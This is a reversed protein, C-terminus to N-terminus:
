KGDLKQNYQKKTIQALTDFIKLNSEITGNKLAQSLDTDYKSLDIGVLNGFSEMFQQKTLRMGNKDEIIHLSHLANLIRIFDIRSGKKNSLKLLSQPKNDEYKALEKLKKIELECKEDFTAEGFSDWHYRDSNQQYDTKVEILYQIKSSLSELSELHNKVKNFDFQNNNKMTLKLYDYFKAIAEVEIYHTDGKGSFQCMPSNTETYDKRGQVIIKDYTDRIDRIKGLTLSKKSSYFITEDIADSAIAGMVGLHSKIDSLPYTINEGVYNDLNLHEPFLLKNYLDIELKVLREKNGSNNLRQEFEDIYAKTKKEVKEDYLDKAKAQIKEYDKSSLFSGGTIKEYRICKFPDDKKGCRKALIPKSFGVHSFDLLRIAIHECSLSEGVSMCTAISGKEWDEYSYHRIEVEHKENTYSDIMEKLYIKM